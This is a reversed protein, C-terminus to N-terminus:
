RPQGKLARLQNYYQEKESFGAGMELGKAVGLSAEDRIGEYELGIGAIAQQSILGPLTM